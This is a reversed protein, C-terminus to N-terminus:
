KLRGELLKKLVTARKRNLDADGDWEGAEQSDEPYPEYKLIFAEYEEREEKSLIYAM